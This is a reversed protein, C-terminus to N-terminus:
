DDNTHVVRKIDVVPTGDVAELARVRIQTGNIALIKVRHLGLPNPRDPSRTLFVGTLPKSLDGRPHVQLVNRDGQHLWTIIVIEEGVKMGSMANVYDPLIELVAEPAGEDYFKPADERRKIESHIFGIPKLRYDTKKSTTM